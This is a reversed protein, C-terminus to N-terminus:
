RRDEWDDIQGAMACCGWMVLAVGVLCIAAAYKM